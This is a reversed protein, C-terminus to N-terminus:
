LPRTAPEARIRQVTSRSVGFHRSAQRVSLGSRKIDDRVDAPLKNVAEPARGREHMDLVNDRQEGLVLHAPNCCAPNDCTHRVVFGHHGPGDPIGDNAIAYAYRHSSELRGDVKFRGYGKVAKAAKWPWCAAPNLRRDVLSWFRRTNYDDPKPLPKGATPM